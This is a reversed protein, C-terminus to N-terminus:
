IAVAARLRASRARPNHYIEEPSARVPKPTLIKLTGAKQGERMYTKIIRDELSHFAIVVMAGGPTLLSTAIPLAKTVSDLESNVAIRLAQFVRTAPHIRSHRAPAPYAGQVIDALRASTTIKRRRRENTINRAIRRAFREEGYRIFIDSLDEESWHNVIDAATPRDSGLDPMSDPSVHYRMDLPEDKSFTFGRGSRDTHYSSFGLDFLVGQVTNRNQARIVKAMNLYTDCVLNINEIGSEQNRIRSEKILDCDWDIGIVLGTSGVRKAIARAHGGGNVTADIFVQGPKPNLVELVEHLLVPIHM